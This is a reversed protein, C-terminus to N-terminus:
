RYIERRNGIEIVLILLEGDRIDAIIRIDGVRYKWLGSLPGVLAAGLARPSPALLLREHLFSLVRQRDEAGLRSLDKEARREFRVVWSTTM